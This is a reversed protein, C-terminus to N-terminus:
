VQLDCIMLVNTVNVMYLGKQGCLVTSKIHILDVTKYFYHWNIFYKIVMPMKIINKKMNISLKLINITYFNRLFYKLFFFNKDLLDRIWKNLLSYKAKLVKPIRFHFKFFDNTDM